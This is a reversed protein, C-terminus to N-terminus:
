VYGEGSIIQALHDASIGFKKGISDLTDGKRVEYPVKFTGTSSATKGPNVNLLHQLGIGFKGALKAATMPAKVDYPVTIEVGPVLNKLGTGGGGGGGGGTGTGSSAQILRFPGGTPPTGLEAIISQMLSYENAPLGTPSQAMYKQVADTAVQYTAGYLNQGDQEAQSVWESNTQITTTSSSKGYDQYNEYAYPVGTNPDVGGYSDSYQGGYNTGYDPAGGTSSYQDAASASALDAAAAKSAKHNKYYAYGVVGVFGATGAMMWTKNVEGVGPIKM